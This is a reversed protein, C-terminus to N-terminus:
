DLGHIFSAAEQAITQAELHHVYHGTSLLRYDGTSLHTLYGTVTDKWGAVLEHQGESIFFFMPKDTPIGDAAVTDANQSLFELERKMDRTLTSKHFLALYAAKDEDSLDTSELLPLNVRMQSDDMYRALGLDMTLRMLTLQIGNPQALLAITEPTCMDLGVIAKIEEPYRQAWRIAELGAMSHPLLVYPPKEGALELAKRSEELITDIDRPRESTESWGYGPREVVAIRYFDTMRKWLPKFDLLPGSTGHGAMFVLTLDGEGEAFVHMMTGDVTVMDGLPPFAKAEQKLLNRHNMMSYISLIAILALVIVLIIVVIKVVGM